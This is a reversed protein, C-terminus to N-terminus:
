TLCHILAYLVGFLLCCGRPAGSGNGAKEEPSASNLDDSWFYLM